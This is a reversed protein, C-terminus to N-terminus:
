SIDDTSARLFLAFHRIHFPYTIFELTIRMCVLLHHNSIGIIIVKLHLQYIWRIWLNALDIDLEELSNLQFTRASLAELLQMTEGAGLVVIDDFHWDAIGEEWAPLSKRQVQNFSEQIKWSTREGLSRYSKSHEILNVCLSPWSWSVRCWSARRWSKLRIVVIIILWRRSTSILNGRVHVSHIRLLMLWYYSTAITLNYVSWCHYLNKWKLKELTM